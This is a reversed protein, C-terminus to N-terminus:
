SKCSSYHRQLGGRESRETDLRHVVPHTEEPNTTWPWVSHPIFIRSCKTTTRIGQVRPRDLTKDPYCCCIRCALNSSSCASSSQSHMMGRCRSASSSAPSTFQPRIGATACSSAGAPETIGTLEAKSDLTRPLVRPREAIASAIHPTCHSIYSSPTPALNAIAYPM